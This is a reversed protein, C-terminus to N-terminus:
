ETASTLGRPPTSRGNSAGSTTASESAYDKRDTAPKGEKSEFIEDWVQKLKDEVKCFEQHIPSTSIKSPRPPFMVGAAYIHLRRSLTCGWHLAVCRLGRAAHSSTFLM